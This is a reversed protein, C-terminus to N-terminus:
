AVMVRIRSVASEPSGSTDIAELAIGVISNQHGTADSDTLHYLELYGDGHSKLPDGIHVDQDTSLLAFVVEGRQAVWVQVPQGSAYTDDIEKGQLEDELAFLVPVVEQGLAAHVAVEDDANLALLMGPTITEHATKEIIVDLYKKLKITKPVLPM